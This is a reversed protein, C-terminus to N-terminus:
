KLLSLVGQGSANAQALMATGAQQLVQSKALNASEIAFDADEIQSKAASQHEVRNMLNSVTHELRNATAGLKGRYADVTNIASDLATISSSANAATTLDTTTAGPTFQTMETATWGAANVTSTLTLVTSSTGVASLNTTGANIKDAMLIMTTAADTTFTQKFTTGNVAMEFYTGTGIAVSTFTGTQKLAAGNEITIAQAATEVAVGSSSLALDAADMAELTIAITDGIADGVQYTVTTAADLLKTGNFDTNDAIRTLEASLAQFEVNM